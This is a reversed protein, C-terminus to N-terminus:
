DKKVGVAANLADVDLWSPRGGIADASTDVDLGHEMVIERVTMVIHQMAELARARMPERPHAQLERVVAALREVEATTTMVCSFLESLAAADEATKAPDTKRPKFPHELKEALTNIKEGQGSIVRDKAELGERAERLAARLETTSMSSVADLDVEGLSGGSALVDIDDDDLVVLELMKSQTGAAELLSKTDSKSFKLTAAMFRQGMRPNIGLAEVRQSFGGHGTLEKLLLLRKGLEMCAEVTRRQYFRIGDELAGVSLSDQYGLQLALAQLGAAAREEILVLETAQAGAEALAAHNVNAAVPEAPPLAKRAM